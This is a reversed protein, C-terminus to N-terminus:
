VCPPPVPIPLTIALIMAASWPCRGYDIQGPAGARRTLGPARSEALAPDRPARAPHLLPHGCNSTSCSVRAKRPTSYNMGGVLTQGRQLGSIAYLGAFLVNISLLCALPRFPRDGYGLITRGLMIRLRLRIPIGTLLKAEDKTWHHRYHNSVFQEQTSAGDTTKMLYGFFRSLGAMCSALSQRKPLPRKVEDETYLNPQPLGGWGL